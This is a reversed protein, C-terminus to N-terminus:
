PDAVGQGLRLMRTVSDVLSPSFGDYILLAQRALVLATLVLPIASLYGLDAWSPLPVAVRLM